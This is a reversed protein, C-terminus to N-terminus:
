GIYMKKLKKFEEYTLLDQKYLDSIRELNSIVEDNRINTTSESGNNEKSNLNQSNDKSPDDTTYGCGKCRWEDRNMFMMSGCKPCFELGIAVTTKPNSSTSVYIIGDSGHHHKGNDFHRQIDGKKELNSM